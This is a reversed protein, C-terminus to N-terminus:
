GGTGAATVVATQIEGFMGTIAGSIGPIFAVLALAIMGAIIAYEIGAAGEENKGFRFLGAKLGRIFKM